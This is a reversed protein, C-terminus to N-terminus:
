QHCWSPQHYVAQLRFALSIAWLIEFIGLRLQSMSSNLTTLFCLLRNGQM